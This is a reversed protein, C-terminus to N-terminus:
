NERLKKAAVTCRILAQAACARFNGADLALLGQITSGGPTCIQEKVHDPREGALILSACGKMAQAALIIADERSLGQSVAADTLAELMLAFFAPSSGCMATSIDFNCAKIYQVLGISSFLRTVINQTRSSINAPAEIVTMSQRVMCATNPMARLIALPLDRSGVSHIIDEIDAITVGALLSVVIKGGLQLKFVSSALCNRLDHPQCALIVVDCRIPSVTKTEDHYIQIDAKFESTAKTIRNASSQSRVFAAFKTPYIDFAIRENGEESDQEQATRLTALLGCLLATGM